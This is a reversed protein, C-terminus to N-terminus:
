GAVWGDCALFEGTPDKTWVVTYLGPESLSTAAGFDTPYMRFGWDGVQLSPAISSVSTGDPAIVRVYASISAPGGTDPKLRLGVEAAQGPRTAPGGDSRPASVQWTGPVGANVYPACLGTAPDFHLNSTPATTTPKSASANAAATKKATSCGAAGLVALAVIVAM